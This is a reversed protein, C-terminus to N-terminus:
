TDAQQLRRMIVGAADNHIAVTILQTAQMPMRRILRVVESFRKADPVSVLVWPVIGGPGFQGRDYFDLYTALKRKLAPGHETALDVEVWWHDRHENNAVLVHADPKMWGDRGDPWWSAPEAAFQELAIRGAGALEVLDVYLQSVALVHRVHRASPTRTRIARGESALLRKGCTDLAFVLGSSGARIGGIRRELTALVRAEVLRGLVRRRVVPRSTDALDAFHLRELQAGTALRLRAVDRVVAWDRESLSERVHELWAASVYGGSRTTLSSWSSLNGHSNRDSGARVLGSRAYTSWAVAVGVAVRSDRM